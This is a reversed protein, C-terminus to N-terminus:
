TVVFNVVGTWSSSPLTLNVNLNESVPNSPNPSGPIVLPLPGVNGLAIQSTNTAFTKMSCSTNNYNPMPFQLQEVTGPSDNFGEFYIPNANLGCVNDPAWINFAVVDVNNQSAEYNLYLGVSAIVLVFVVIIVVVVLLRSRRRPTGGGAGAWPTAGGRGYPSPAAPLPPPPTVPPLTSAVDPVTTGCYSCFRAGAPLPAGCGVCFKASM